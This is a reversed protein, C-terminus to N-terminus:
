TSRRGRWGRWSSWTSGAGRELWQTLAPSREDPRASTHWEALTRWRPLFGELSGSLGVVWLNTGGVGTSNGSMEGGWRM